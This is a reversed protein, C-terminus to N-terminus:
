EAEVNTVGSTKIFDVLYENEAKEIDACAGEWEKFGKYIFMLKDGISFVSKIDHTVVVTTMKYEVTIDKILEDIVAATKPDLGSNPEDCFLYKPNLAIARAIGVRKKMGGSLEAPFLKQSNPLNVRELCFNVREAIKKATWSRFMVIPFAVNEEVTMSDFLAAGQFLMGLEMRLKRMGASSISLIDVDEYKISGTDPRLLGVLCKLLVTKGSGSAGIIMNICGPHFTFDIGKLVQKEGFSRTINQIVISM